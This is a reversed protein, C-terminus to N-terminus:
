AFWPESFFISIRRHIQCALPFIGYKADYQDYIQLGHILLCASLYYYCHFSRQLFVIYATNYHVEYM